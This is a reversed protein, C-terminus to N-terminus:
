KFIRYLTDIKLIKTNIFCIIFTTMALANLPLFIKMLHFITVASHFSFNWREGFSFMKVIARIFVNM